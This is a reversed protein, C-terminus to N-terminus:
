NDVEQQTFDKRYVLEAMLWEKGIPCCQLVIIDMDPNAVRDTYTEWHRRNNRDTIEPHSYKEVVDVQKHGGTALVAKARPSENHFNEIWSNPNTKVISTSPTNNLTTSVHVTQESDYSNFM